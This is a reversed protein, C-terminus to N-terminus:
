VVSVPSVGRMQLVKLAERLEELVPVARGELVFLVGQATPIPALGLKALGLECEVDLVSRGKFDRIRLDGVGVKGATVFDSDFKGHAVAFCGVAVIAGRALPLLCRGPFVLHHLHSEVNGPGGRPLLGLTTISAAVCILFLLVGHSEKVVREDLLRLDSLCGSISNSGEKVDQV